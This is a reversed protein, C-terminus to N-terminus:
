GKPAPCQGACIHGIHDPGAPISKPRQHCAPRLQPKCQITCSHRNPRSARVARSHQSPLFSTQQTARFPSFLGASVAVIALVASTLLGKDLHPMRLGQLVLAQQM